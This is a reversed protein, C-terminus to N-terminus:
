PQNPADRPITPKLACKAYWCIAKVWCCILKFKGVSKLFGIVGSCSNVGPAHCSGSNSANNVCNVFQDLANFAKRLPSILYNIFFYRIRKSENKKLYLSLVVQNLFLLLKFM